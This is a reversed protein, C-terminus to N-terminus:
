GVWIQGRQLIESLSIGVLHKKSWKKLFTNDILKVNNATAMALAAKTFTGSTMVAVQDFSEDKLNLAGMSKQIVDSGVTNDIYHKCQVSVKAGIYGPSKVRIDTGRDFSGGEIKEIIYGEKELLFACFLEFEDGKHKTNEFTKEMIEEYANSFIPVSRLSNPIETYAGSERRVHSSSVEKFPGGNSVSYFWLVLAGVPFLIIWFAWRPSYNKEPTNAINFEILIVPLAVLVTLVSALLPEESYYGLEFGTIVHPIYLILLLSTIVFTWKLDIESDSKNWLQNRADRFGPKWTFGLFAFSAKIHKPLLHEKIEDTVRGLVEAYVVDANSVSDDPDVPSNPM